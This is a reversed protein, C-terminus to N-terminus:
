PVIRAQIAPPPFTAEPHSYESMDYEKWRRRSTPDWVFCTIRVPQSMEAVLVRM